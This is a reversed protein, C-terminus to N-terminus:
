FFDHGLEKRLLEIANAEIKRIKERSQRVLRSTEELTRSKEGDLGFRFLIVSRELEPLEQLAKHISNSIEKNGILEVPDEVDAVLFDKLSKVQSNSKGSSIEAELSVPETYLENVKEIEEPAVKLERALEKVSPYRNHEKEFAAAKKHVRSAFEHIHSPLRVTRGQNRFLRIFSQKIWWTAYTSFKLNRKTDFKEIARILATNGEQILDEIPIGLHQYQIAFSVVLRLNATLFNNRLEIVKVESQLIDRHLDLFNQKYLGTHAKWKGCNVFAELEPIVQFYLGHALGSEYLTKLANQKDRETVRSLPKSSLLQDVEEFADIIKKALDKSSLSPIGYSNSMKSIAKGEKQLNRYRNIFLRWVVPISLLNSKLLEVENSIEKALAIEEPKSLTPYSKVDKFYRSLVGAVESTKDNM